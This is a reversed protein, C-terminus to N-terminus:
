NQQCWDERPSLLPNILLLRLGGGRGKYSIDWGFPSPCPRFTVPPAPANSIIWHIPPPSSDVTSYWVRSQAFDFLKVNYNGSEEMQVLASHMSVLQLLDIGTIEWRTWPPLGEGAWEERRPQVHGTGIPSHHILRGWLSLTQYFTVWM